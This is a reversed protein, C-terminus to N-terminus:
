TTVTFTISTATGDDLIYHATGPTTMVIEFTTCNISFSNQFLFDTNSPNPYSLGAGNPVLVLDAELNYGSSGNPTFYIWWQYAYNNGFPDTVIFTDSLYWLDNCDNPLGIPSQGHYNTGVGVSTSSTVRTMQIPDPSYPYGGKDFAYVLYLTTPWNTSITGCLCCCICENATTYTYTAMARVAFWLVCTLLMAYVSHLM